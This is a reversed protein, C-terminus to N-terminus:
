RIKLDFGVQLGIYPKAKFVKDKLYVGIIVIGFSRYFSKLRPTLLVSGCVRQSFYDTSFVKLFHYNAGIMIKENLKFFLYTDDIIDTDKYKRLSYTRRELYYGEEGISLIDFKLSNVFVISSVKLKLAPAISFWYGTETHRPVNEMDDYDYFVDPGEWNCYGFGLHRYMVYPGGQLTLEFFAIPVFCLRLALLDDTPSLENQIGMEIKTSEWLIGEKKVLPLRYKLGSKLLLGLPNYSLGLTQTFYAGKEIPQSHITHIIILLFLFIRKLRVMILVEQSSSAFITLKSYLKCAFTM